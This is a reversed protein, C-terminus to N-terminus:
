TSFTPDPITGGRNFNHCTGCYQNFLANGNAIEKDNASVPLEILKSEPRVPFTPM